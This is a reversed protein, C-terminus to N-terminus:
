FSGSLGFGRPGVFPRVKAARKGVMTLEPEDDTGALVVGLPIGAGLVMVLTIGDGLGRLAPTGEHCTDSRCDDTKSLRIAYYTALTATAVLVGAGVWRAASGDRVDIRLAIPADGVEYKGAGTVQGSADELGFEYRGRLIVASCPAQCLRTWEASPEAIFRQSGWFDARDRVHVWASGPSDGASIQVNAPM